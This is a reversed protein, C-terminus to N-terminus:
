QFFILLLCAELCRTKPLIYSLSLFASSAALLIRRLAFTAKTQYEKPVRVIRWLWPPHRNQPFQFQWFSFQFPLTGIRNDNIHFRWFVLLIPNWYPVTAPKHVFPMLTPQLPAPMRLIRRLIAFAVFHVARFSIPKPVPNHLLISM